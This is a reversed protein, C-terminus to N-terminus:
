LEAIAYYTFIVNTNTSAAATTYFDFHETDITLMAYTAVNSAFSFNFACTPTARMRTPFQCRYSDAFTSNPAPWIHYGRGFYYYRFCLLEEAGLSRWEFPTAVIGRELQINKFTGSSATTVRVQVHGAAGAPVTLTVSRRGSGATIVGSVNSSWDYAGVAITVNVSPDELSITVQQNALGPDEIHQLMTGNLTVVKTTSNVSMTTGNNVYWRDWLYGGSSVGGSAGRQNVRFCGNILYNRLTGFLQVFKNDTQTRSYVDPVDVATLTVAGTRGAVSTVPSGGSSLAIVGTTPNYDIGGTGSLVNRARSQTFYQVGGGEAVDNTTIAIDATGDFARGNILRAVALKTATDANGTLPGNFQAAGVVNFAIDGSANRLALKSATAASTADAPGYPVYGLATNVDSASLQTASVVQGKTNITVKTYAGATLGPLTKLTVSITINASGNFSNVGDADGAITINRTTELRTATAANGILQGTATGFEVNAKLRAGLNDDEYTEYFGWTNGAENWLLYVDNKTGRYGKFGIFAETGTNNNVAFAPIPDVINLTDLDEIADKFAQVVEEITLGTPNTVIDVRNAIINEGDRVAFVGATPSGLRAYLRQTGTGTLTETETFLISHAEALSGPALDSIIYYILTPANNNFKVPLPGLNLWADDTLFYKTSM